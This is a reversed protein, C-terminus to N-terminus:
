SAQSEPLTEMPISGALSLGGANSKQGLPGPVGAVAEAWAGVLSLVFELDQALLGAKTMPVPQGGDELNWHELCEVFREFLPDLARIQEPGIDEGLEALAAMDMIGDMSTARARVELGALEPDEFKLLYVKAHAKRDYGAM